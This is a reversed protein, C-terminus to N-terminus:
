PYFKELTNKELYMIEKIQGEGYMPNVKTAGVRQPGIYSAFCRTMVFLSAVLQEYRGVEIWEDHIMLKSTFTEWARPRGFEIINDIFETFEQSWVKAMWHTMAASNHPIKDQFKTLMGWAWRSKYWSVPHRVFGVFKKDALEPYMMLTAHAGIHEERPNGEGNLDDCTERAEPRCAQIVKRCYSGGTKPVHIFVFKDTVLAM